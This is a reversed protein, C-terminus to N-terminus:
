MVNHHTTLLFLADVANFLMGSGYSQPMYKYSDATILPVLSAVIDYIYLERQIAKDLIM